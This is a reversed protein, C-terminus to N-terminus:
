FLSNMNGVTSVDWMSIDGIFKSFAFMGHMDTVSSVDWKSIDGDFSSFTFMNAMDTIRSVDWQGIAGHAGNCRDGKISLRTCTDIASTLESKLRPSFVPPYLMCATRSISGSSGVFMNDKTAKSHVWAAGCLQQKFSTAGLCMDTMNTVRSVDWKSIDGDFLAANAFMGSMDTVSSVDWKSIESNFSTADLFMSSM